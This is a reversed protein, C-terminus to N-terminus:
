IPRSDAMWRQTCWEGQFRHTDIELNHMVVVEEIHKSWVTLAPLAPNQGKFFTVVRRHLHSGCIIQNYAQTRRYSLPCSITLYKKSKTNTNSEM